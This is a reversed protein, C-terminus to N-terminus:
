RSSRPVESPFLLRSDGPFPRKFDFSSYWIARKTLNEDGEDPKLPRSTFLKASEQIWAQRLRSASQAPNMEDLPVQNPVATFPTLDASNTFATTMPTAVLDRQNMPPLGLIQEITRVVDIQTYYTHDVLGRRAYPSVVYVPSRHGDVHDVGYSADDEVCFIVSDKWYRSHSIAEVVRGFALDNDAVASRVTPYAATEGGGHDDPLTMITLSPLDKDAVHRNFERLFIDARYQDPIGGDFGPFNRDLLTDLSPVDSRAQFEGLSVHLAGALKGELTQSDHFWDTWSVDHKSGDFHAAYEGFAQVSKGRRTANEWIFGTPAYALNDGGNFPYARKFSGGFGREIYDDAFASNAWQHGDISVTGSVYFNDLLPFQNVIAHQTPTGAKGFEVNAPSGNGRPDDGLDEDYKHNEKIIYIVHKILSPEGIREPIATASITSRIRQEAESRKDWRNDAIVTRTLGAIARRGPVPILSVTGTFHLVTRGYEQSNPVHEMPASGVGKLATVLLDDHLKDYVVASPYWATPLLGVLKVSEAPGKWDYAALANNAGLSVVLLQNPLMVIANPSSGFPANAFPQMSITKIVRRSTTDIVSVTDSNTNCV